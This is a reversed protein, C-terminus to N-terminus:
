DFVVMGAYADRILHDFRVQTYCRSPTHLWDLYTHYGERAVLCAQRQNGRQSVDCPMGPLYFRPKRPM